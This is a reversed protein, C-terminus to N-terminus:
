DDGWKWRCEYRFNSKPEIIQFTAIAGVPLEVKSTPEIITRLEPQDIPFGIIQFDKYSRDEPMLMWIQALGTNAFINFLFRGEDSSQSARESILNGEFVAVTGSNIPIQSLDLNVEWLYTGNNADARLYRPNLSETVCQFAMAEDRSDSQFRLTKEQGTRRIKLRSYVYPASQATSESWQRLDFIRNDSLVEFEDFKAPVLTEAEEFEIPPVLGNPGDEILDLIKRYVPSTQSVASLVYGRQTAKRHSRFILYPMTFLLLAILPVWVYTPWDTPSLLTRFIRRSSSRQLIRGSKLANEERSLEGQQSNSSDESFPDWCELDDSNALPLASEKCVSRAVCYGHQVLTSIELNSFRDMDTRILPAQRQVEIHPADPAEDQSVMKTIPFFLTGKQGHFAQLELQNVRDMLIDSSRMATSFLGGTQANAHVKFSAGANSMFIGDLPHLEALRGEQQGDQTLLSGQQLYHFMRLGLNDHIGGDTFAHRGFEGELAGVDSAKLALPPFFGPFASSAAVAMAVTALGTPLHEFERQGNVGRRQLFMGDRYFACVSGESVDTALIFLRPSEPLQFLAADNFLYKEYHWELLGARTYQRRTGLRASRRLINAFAALPFRRVIRNRVDIQLFQILEDSAAQFDKDSGNYREWNLALHAAIVSGGSVATIHSVQSLLGTDRLLRIVGLHYVAARFGGGSLALGFQNM